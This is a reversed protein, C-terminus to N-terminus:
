RNSPDGGLRTKLTHRATAENIHKSILDRLTDVKKLRVIWDHESIQIIKARNELERSLSKVPEPYTDGGFIM